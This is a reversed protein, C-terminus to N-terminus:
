ALQECRECGHGRGLYMGPQCAVTCGGLHHTGAPDSCAFCEVVGDAHILM